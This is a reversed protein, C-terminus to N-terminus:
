RPNQKQTAQSYRAFSSKLCATWNEKTTKRRTETERLRSAVVERAMVSSQINMKRLQQRAPQLAILAALIAMGGTILTQFDYVDAGLKLRCDSLTAASGCRWYIWGYAILALFSTWLIVARQWNKAPLFRHSLGGLGALRAKFPM